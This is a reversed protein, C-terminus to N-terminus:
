EQKKLQRRCMQRRAQCCALRSSFAPFRDSGHVGKHTFMYKPDDFNISEHNYARNISM